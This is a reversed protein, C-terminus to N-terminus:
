LCFWIHQKDFWKCEYGVFRGNRGSSTPVL